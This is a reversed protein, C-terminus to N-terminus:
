NFAQGSRDYPRSDLSPERLGRSAVENELSKQQLPFSTRSEQQFTFEEQNTKNENGLHITIHDRANM